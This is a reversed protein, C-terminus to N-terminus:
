KSEVAGIGVVTRGSRCRRYRYGISEDDVVSSESRDLSKERMRSDLDVDEAKILGGM